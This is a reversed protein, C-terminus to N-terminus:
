SIKIQKVEDANKQEVKPLSVKLIGQEYSAVVQETDIIEPLTFNRTFSTYSFERRKSTTNKEQNEQEKRAKISLNGDKVEIQFDSKAFGPAAIEVEFRGSHEVINAAVFNQASDSGVFQHIGTNFFHRPHAPHYKILNM